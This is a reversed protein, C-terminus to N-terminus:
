RPRVTLTRGRKFPLSSMHAHSHRLFDQRGVGTKVTHHRSLQDLRIQIEDEAIVIRASRQRQGSADTVKWSLVPQEMAAGLPRDMHMTRLHTIQM